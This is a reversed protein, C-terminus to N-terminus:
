QLLDKGSLISANGQSQLAEVKTLVRGLPLSSNKGRWMKTSGVIFLRNMARSLAVNIRNPLSLFGPRQSPNNRVTSVIVIQNEKGQYSDVTDIKVLRRYDGLWTAEAKMQDLTDRQRSYMCIIGIAPEGPQLDAKVAEMFDDSEVISRLLSMILGAEGENWHHARDSSEKEQGLEGLTFTDVWSVQRALLEPLHTYYPKPEGRGLELKGDYFCDSVLEGIYQAMRYQELLSASVKAGYPSEFIREFDSAFLASGEQAGFKALMLEKVDDAVTPPLQKHDGVLLVRRGTQMAVALESSAARGAEDVIVWDYLTQVVGSSQHGVGVLTGAVVTRSKALFEAFNAEPAGLASIWDDALRVLNHLRHLLDPSSVEHKQVLKTELESLLKEPDEDGVSTDYVDRCVDEFTSTMTRLRAATRTREEESYEAALETRLKRIRAALPGLRDHMDIFERAFSPSLGIATAVAVLRARKEAKFQEKYAQEISASHLHRIGDSASSEKGLRVADFAVGLSRCLELGKELANNVAEHSQSVLLIRRANERSMLYHLLTAIFWTKGTGPPGQLLSIPGNSIVRRFAERQSANLGKQGDSYADLDADTPEAYKVPELSGAQLPDFYDRLSAIVAKGDLIRRTAQTRINLSSKTRTTTLRIKDGIQPNSRPNFERIVLLSLEGRSSEDLDLLGLTRWSGDYGRHEVLVLDDRSYEEDGDDHHCPLLTLERNAPHPKRHAAVTLGPLVEEEADLMEQWIQAVTMSQLALTPDAVEAATPVQASGARETINKVAVLVTPQALLAEVLETIDSTKGGDQLVVGCALQDTADRQALMLQLQTITNARVETAKAQSQDWEFTVQRGIGTIRFFVSGKSRKSESVRVHLKGNDQHLPGAPISRYALGPVVAVITRHEAPPAELAAALAKQLPELLSASRDKLLVRLQEYVRPVPFPGEPAEQTGGFVEALVAALGYRDREFPSMTKYEPPLYATTYADGPAHAFDLVDIFVADGDPTVVVNQPHIDGHPLELAHLRQVTDVLSSAVRVRAALEPNSALWQPTTTGEVWDRVLLLSRRSLGFDHILPLGPIAGGRVTRARELFALLRLSYDQRLPDPEVGNWVRVALNAGNTMSRYFLVDDDDKLTEVEKYDRQKSKAEFSAFQSLEIIKQSARTSVANIGDLLARADKYREHPDPSLARELVANFAGQHVDDARSAWVYVDNRRPPREGFLLLYAVAGLLFVDRQYPTSAGTSNVEEPLNTREVRVQGHLSGVTKLSPFYAGPFGAMVVRSPREIWISHDGIDRHAVNLDHLDAFRSVLAKVLRVREDPDLKPLVSNAFEALRAVKAPLAYLEEFDFTVDAGEARGIPRLMSTGLDPNHTTVYEYVRQERLGIFARDGEGILTAGLAAFNWRRLLALQDPDDKAQAKFEAYLTNPHVWIPVDGPKYGQVYYDKPKFTNGGFFDDYVKVNNKAVLDYRSGRPLVKKYKAQDTWELLEYLYLVARNEEEPLNLEEIGDQIVVFSSIFPTRDNGLKQKMVSALKMAKLGVVSVPSKGMDRGDVYWNEGVATLTKGHWNKLELVVINNNTVLVLDFDDEGSGRGGRALKFAAYGRWQSTFPKASFTREIKQHASVEAQPVGAKKIPIIKLSQGEGGYELV